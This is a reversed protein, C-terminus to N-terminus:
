SLSETKEKIKTLIDSCSRCIKVKGIDDGHGLHITDCFWRRHLTDCLACPHLWLSKLWAIM